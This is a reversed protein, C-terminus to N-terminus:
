EAEPITLKLGTITLGEGHLAKAVMSKDIELRMGATKSKEVEAKLKANNEATTTIYPRGLITNPEGAHLGPELKYERKYLHEVESQLKQATAILDASNGVDTKAKETDMMAGGQSLIHGSVIGARNARDLLIRLATIKKIVASRM